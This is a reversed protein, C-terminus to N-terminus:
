SVVKELEEKLKEYRTPYADRYVINGEADIIVTTDLVRVKYKQIVANNKDFGFTYTPNGAWELFPQLAEPSSSPDVDLALISIKDGYEQHIQKLAQAEPVCTPCWYAMFLIVTPKGRQDSLSFTGGDLTPVSFDPAAEGKDPASALGVSVGGASSGSSSPSQAATQPQSPSAPQSQPASPAQPQAPQVQSQVQQDQPQVQQELPQVQALPPSAKSGASEAIQRAVAPESSRGALWYALIGVGILLIIAGIGLLIKNGDITIVHDEPQQPQRKHRRAEAM